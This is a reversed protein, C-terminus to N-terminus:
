QKEADEERAFTKDKLVWEKLQALDARWLDKANKKDLEDRENRRKRWEQELAEVREASLSSVSTRLLYEFPETTTTTSSTKEIAEEASDGGDGSDDDEQQQQPLKPLEPPFGRRALEALLEARPRGLWQAGGQHVMFRAFEGRIRLVDCELTLTLLQRERRREYFPLREHVFARVVDEATLFHQLRGDCDFLHMNRLSLNSELRFARAMAKRSATYEKMHRPSVSVVFHVSHESHLERFSEITGIELMEELYEKQTTTWRGIPLETIEITQKGTARAVGRTVLEGKAADLVRVEGGFHRWWPVMAHLSKGALAREVNGIVDLPHYSPVNTSWGTGVGAAGNLLVVPVVPAYTVPQVRDGDEVAHRLVGDDVERYLLRAAPALRTFLYRPSAADKGGLLRTGFQGAPVLLPVNNAGCYDQAMGIITAALAAEGHHYNTHEAVYGALQAVKIEQTLRRRFCAFLVKRQGPKLGDLLRPVARVLSLRSFLVLEQNIFEAYSLAARTHDVVAIADENDDGVYQELWRKREDVRDRAFAMEILEDEADRPAGAGVPADRGGWLFRLRHREVNSFYERAEAATSTGLGKYYKHSWKRREAVPLATRWEEFERVTFFSKSEGGGRRTAKVIPTVFEDLFQNGKLLQPWFTHMYNIFLGKIHSGDADQDTMLMVRGYRMKSPQEHEVKLGLITKVASLEANDLVRQTPADRVNLLKGRLPYVGFRDRGLESLGAVALAKASDGETLILCCESAKDTGAYHADQLKPLGLLAGRASKKGATAADVRRLQRLELQRVVAEVIGSEDVIRQAMRESLVFPAGFDDARTTLTEKTQSDFAPNDINCSIFLALAGRINALRPQLDRHRREIARLVCQAVVDAVHAVHTGGRPTAIGNVYSVQAACAGSPASLSQLSVRAVGVGVHWRPKREFLLQAGGKTDVADHLAAYEEFSRPEVAAGNWTVAVDPACAAADHVRRRWVALVETDALSRMAGGAFRSLDPEFEITTSDAAGPPAPEVLPPDCRTMNAHWTQRYRLARHSDVIDVHFRTSFINCLKAGFGNRGGTIKATSDDFNSGTLLHGMVLEPVYIGETAHLVVPISRGDNRIAVLNRAVDVRVDLHAMSSDRQRNDLANVLIEDFVKYLAPVFKASRLSYRLADAKAPLWVLSELVETSGVYTDPRILVHELPTKRQYQQEISSSSSSGPRSKTAFCRLAQLNRNTQRWVVRSAFLSARRLTTTMRLLQLASM